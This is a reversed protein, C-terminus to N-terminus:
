QRKLLRYRYADPRKRSNHKISGNIGVKNGNMQLSVASPQRDSSNLGPNGSSLGSTGGNGGSGGVGAGGPGGASGAAGARAVVVVLAATAM